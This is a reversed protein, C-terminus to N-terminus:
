MYIFKYKFRVPAVKFLMERESFYVYENYTLNIYFESSPASRTQLHHIAGKPMIDLIEYM